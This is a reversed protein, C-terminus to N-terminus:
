AGKQLPGSGKGRGRKALQCSGLCVCVCVCVCFCMSSRWALNWGGLAFVIAAVTPTKRPCVWLTVKLAAPRLWYLYVPPFWCQIEDEGHNHLAMMIGLVISNYKQRIKSCKLMSFLQIKCACTINLLNKTEKIIQASLILACICHCVIQVVTM